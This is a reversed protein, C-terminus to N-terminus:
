GHPDVAKRWALLVVEGFPDTAPLPYGHYVAQVHNELQAELPKGDASVSWVNQPVGEVERASV